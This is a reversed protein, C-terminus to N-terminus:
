NRWLAYEDPLRECTASHTIRFEEEGAEEFYKRDDMDTYSTTSKSERLYSKFARRESPSLQQITAVYEQQYFHETDSELKEVGRIFQELSMDQWNESCLWKATTVNRESEIAEASEVFWDGLVAARADGEITGQEIGFANAFIHDGHGGGNVVILFLSYSVWDPINQSGRYVEIVAEEGAPDTRASAPTLLVTLAVLVAALVKMM